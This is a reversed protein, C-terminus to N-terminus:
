DHNEWIRYLLCVRFNLGVCRIEVEVGDDKLPEPQEQVWQLSSLLGYQQIVMQKPTGEQVEPELAKTLSSWHFRGINVIGDRIVFETDVGHKLPDRNCFRECVSMSAQLTRSDLETLELLWFDITLEVRITRALGNVIGYRPDTCGVQAPRTLWLVGGKLKSLYEIFTKYDSESIEDFFPTGLDLVSITHAAQPHEKNDDLQRWYVTAGAQEYLQSLQLGFEPKERMYLFAIAEPKQTDAVARSTMHACFYYPPEEDLVVCDTGSFGAERLEKDWRDASVYPVDGRGDAEGIWWGPLRGTIFGPLRGSMFDSGTPCSPKLLECLYLRGSNRLLSRVNRLTHQLSSTAHLVNSAIILDFSGLEFGQEAPDKEIDLVKCELGKHDKFQEKASNCFGPSIDTFIYQSYMRVGERSMLAPLIQMTTSGTGGGIELVKMSPNAHAYLHFFEDTDIAETSLRYFAGLRDDAMLTELPNTEGKFFSEVNQRQAADYVLKAIDISTKDGLVELEQLKSNLLAERDEPNSTAWSSAEPVLLEQDGQIMKDKELSLWEFYRKLHGLPQIELSEAIDLTQLMSLITIKEGLVRLSTRNHRSRILDSPSLYDIHPLWELRSLDYSDKRDASDGTDFPIGKTDNLSVAIEGSDKSVAVVNGKTNALDLKAEAILDQGAPNITIQRIDIPLALTDMHRTIAKCGAVAYLQLCFDIITPHVAYNAEHETKDHCMEATALYEHTDASINKLGQFRPGYRLGLYAMRDYFYGSAIKRKQHSITRTPIDGDKDANRSRGEAACNEVWVSGNFTCISIEYWEKSNTLETVRMPRISTMIETAEMEPLILAAKIMFNRLVFSESGTSSTQRLAEGMMAIYAACPFVVNTGVRHDRLWPVDSEHFINRWMPQLESAEPCISGLLEHHPHRRHRWARSVRNENWYEEGHDWPYTPLDSLISGPPNVFSFDVDHGYEYLHGLSHLISLIADNDRILTPVYIPLSKDRRKEQFIQRLPGQLASHPGIELFTRLNPIETLVNGVADNFQVTSELNRRWYAADFAHRTGVLKGSVTSYFPIGEKNLQQPLHRALTDEYAAGVERM